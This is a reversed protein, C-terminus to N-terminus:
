DEPVLFLYCADGNHLALVKSEKRWTFNSGRISFQNQNQNLDTIAVALRLDIESIFEGYASENFSLIGTATNLQVYKESFFPEENAEYAM